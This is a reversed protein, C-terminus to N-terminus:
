LGERNTPNNVIGLAMAVMGIADVVAVWAEHTWGMRETFGFVNLITWLAGAVGVWLAWSKFRNQQEHAATEEIEFTGMNQNENM